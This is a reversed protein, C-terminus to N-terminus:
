SALALGVGAALVQLLLVLMAVGHLAAFRRHRPDGPPLADIGGEAARRARRTLEDVIVAVGQLLACFFAMVTARDSAGITVPFLAPLFAISRAFGTRSLIEGALDGALKRDKTRAFVGSTALFTAIGGGFWFALALTRLALATRIM